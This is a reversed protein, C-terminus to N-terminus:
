NYPTTRIVARGLAKASSERAQAIATDFQSKRFTGNQADSWTKGSMLMLKSIAGDSIEYLYKNAIWKPFSTASISPRLALTLVLGATVTSVPIPALIIQGPEIQTYFKATASATRWGPMAKDLMETSQATLPDGDVAANMVMAVESGPPLEINYEAEGANVDIPDPLHKWILSLSCFEIVARKIANEVTPEPPYAALHPTIESSIDSYKTSAM